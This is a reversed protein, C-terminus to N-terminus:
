PVLFIQFLALIYGVIGAAMIGACYMPFAEGLLLNQWLTFEEGAQLRSYINYNTSSYLHEVSRYFNFYLWIIYQGNVLLYYTAMGMQLGRSGKRGLGGWISITTLEYIVGRCIEELSLKRLNHFFLRLAFLLMMSLIMMPILYSFAILVSATLSPPLILAPHYRLLFRTTPLM